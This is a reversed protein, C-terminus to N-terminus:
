SNQCPYAQTLEGVEFCVNPAFRPRTVVTNEFYFPELGWDMMPVFGSWTQVVLNFDANAMIPIKDQIDTLTDETIPKIIEGSGGSVASWSVHTKNETRDYTVATVRVITPYDSQALLSLLDNMGDVYETTLFDDERSIMDALTYSARVNINLTRFADFFTFIGAYAFLLVPFILVTEVSFSGRESRRFRRLRAFPKLLRLM